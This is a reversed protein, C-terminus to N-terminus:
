SPALAQFAQLLKGAARNVDIISTAWAVETLFEVIQGRMEQEEVLEPRSTAENM